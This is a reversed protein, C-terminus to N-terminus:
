WQYIEFGFAGGIINAKGAREAEKASDFLVVDDELTVLPIPFEGGNNSRLMVFWKQPRKGEAM